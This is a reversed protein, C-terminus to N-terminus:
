RCFIENLEYIPMEPLCKKEKIQTNPSISMNFNTMKSVEYKM